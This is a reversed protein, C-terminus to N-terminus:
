IIYDQEVTVTGTVATTVNAGGNDKLQVEVKYKAGAELAESESVTPTLEYSANNDADVTLEQELRIVGAGANDTPAVIATIAADLTVETWDFDDSPSSFTYAFM